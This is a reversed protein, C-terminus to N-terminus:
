NPAMELQRRKRMSDIRPIITGRTATDGSKTVYSRKSLSDLVVKMLDPRERYYAWSKDFEEKTLRHFQLVQGYRKDIEAEKNISDKNQVYGGIFEGAYIMDWLVEEFKPQPLVDKPLKNKKSCASVLAFLLIVFLQLKLVSQMVYTQTRM